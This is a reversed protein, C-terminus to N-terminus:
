ISKKLMELENRLGDFEFGTNQVAVQFIEATRVELINRVDSLQDSLVNWEDVLLDAVTKEGVRFQEAYNELGLAELDEAVSGMKESINGLGDMFDQGTELVWDAAGSLRNFFGAAQNHQDAILNEDFWEFMADPNQGWEDARTRITNGFDTLKSDWTDRATGWDSGTMAALSRSLGWLDGILVMMTGLDVGRDALFDFEEHFASDFQTRYEPSVLYTIRHAKNLFAMGTRHYVVGAQELFAGWRMGAPFEMAFAWSNAVTTGLMFLLLGKWFKPDHLMRVIGQLIERPMRGIKDYIDKLVDDVNGILNDAVEGAQQFIAGPLSTVAGITDDVFNGAFDGLEEFLNM